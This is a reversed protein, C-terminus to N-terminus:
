VDKSLRNLNIYYINTDLLVAQKVDPRVIKISSDDRIVISLGNDDRILVDIEHVKDDTYGCDITEGIISEVRMLAAKISYDDSSSRRLVEDLIVLLEGLENRDNRISGEFLSPNEFKKGQLMLLDDISRPFRRNFRWSLVLIAILTCIDAMLFCTWVASIGMFPSFAMVTIMILAVGRCLVLISALTKRKTSQYAYILIMCITTTPISLAFWRLCWMASTYYEEDDVLVHTIAASFVLVVAATIISIILSIASLERVGDCLAKRDGQPYFTSCLVASMIASGTYVAIVFHLVANQSTLCAKAGLGTTVIFVNLFYYRLTMSIRNLISRFGVKSIAKMGNWLEFPRRLMMNHGEKRRHIPTLLLAAVSGVAVSIGVGFPGKGGDVTLWVSTIDVIIYVLFCSLALYKDGDMRLFMIEIQLLLLPIASIGLSLVYEASIIDSLPTDYGQHLVLFYVLCVMFFVAGVAMATYVAISYSNVARDRNGNALHKSFIISSGTAVMSGTVSIFLTLYSPVSIAVVDADSLWIGALFTNIFTAVTSTLSVLMTIPLYTRLIKRIILNHEM